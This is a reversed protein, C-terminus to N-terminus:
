DLSRGHEYCTASGVKPSLAQNINNYCFSDRSSCEWASVTEIGVTEFEACFFCQQIRWFL